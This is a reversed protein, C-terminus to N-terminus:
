KRNKRCVIREETPKALAGKVIRADDAYRLRLL